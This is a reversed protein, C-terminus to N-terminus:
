SWIKCENESVSLRRKNKAYNATLHYISLYGQAGHTFEIWKMSYDLCFLCAEVKAVSFSEGSSPTRSQLFWNNVNKFTEKKSWIHPRTWKLTSILTQDSLMADHLLHSSCWFLKSRLPSQDFSGLTQWLKAKPQISSGWLCFVVRNSMPVTILIEPTM